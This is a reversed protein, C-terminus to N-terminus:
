DQCGNYLEFKVEGTWVCQVNPSSTRIVDANVHLISNVPAKIIEVFPVGGPFGEYVLNLVEIHNATIIVQLANGPCLSNSSIVFKYGTSSINIFTSDYITKANGLKDSLLLACGKDIVSKNLAIEPEQSCGAMIFAGLVVPVLIKNLISEIM